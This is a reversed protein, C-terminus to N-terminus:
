IRVIVRCFSSTCIKKRGNKLNSRFCNQAICRIFEAGKKFTTSKFAKKIVVEGVKYFEVEKITLDTGRFVVGKFDPLQNLGSTACVIHAKLRELSARNGTRLADNLWGYHEATYARIAVLDETPINRIEPHKMKLSEIERAYQNYEYLNDRLDERLKDSSHVEVAEPKIEKARVNGSALLPTEIKVKGGEINIKTGASEAYNQLSEAYKVNGEGLAKVTEEYMVQKAENISLSEKGRMKALSENLKTGVRFAIAGGAQKMMQDIIENDSQGSVTTKSLHFLSVRRYAKERM